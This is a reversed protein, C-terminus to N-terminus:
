FARDLNHTYIIVHLKLESRDWNTHLQCLESLIDVVMESVNILDPATEDGNNTHTHTHTHTHQYIIEKWVCASLINLQFGCQLIANHVFM